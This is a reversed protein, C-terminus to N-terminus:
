PLTEFVTKTIYGPKGILPLRANGNEKHLACLAKRFAYSSMDLPLPPRDEVEWMCCLLRVVPSDAARLEEILTREEPCLEAEDKPSAFWDAVGSSFLRGDKTEAVIAQALTHEDAPADITQLVAKAREWLPQYEASLVYKASFDKNEDM